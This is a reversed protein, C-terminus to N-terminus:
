MEVGHAAHQACRPYGRVVRGQASNLEGGVHDVVVPTTGVESRELGGLGRAGGGLRRWAPHGEVLRRGRARAAARVERPLRGEMAVRLLRARAM